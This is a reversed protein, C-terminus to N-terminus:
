ILYYNFQNIKFNYKIKILFHRKKSNERVTKLAQIAEKRDM